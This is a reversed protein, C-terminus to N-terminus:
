YGTSSYQMVLKVEFELSKVNFESSVLLVQYGISRVGTSIVNWLLFKMDLRLLFWYFVVCRKALQEWEIAESISQCQAGLRVFM